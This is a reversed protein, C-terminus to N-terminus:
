YSSLAKYAHCTLLWFISPLSVSLWEFSTRGLLSADLCHRLLICPRCAPNKKSFIQSYESGIGGGGVHWHGGGGWGSLLIM